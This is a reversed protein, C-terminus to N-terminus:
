LKRVLAVVGIAVLIGVFIRLPIELWWALSVPLILIGAVLGVIVGFTVAWRKLFQAIV